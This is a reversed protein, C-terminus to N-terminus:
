HMQSLPRANDVVDLPADVMVGRTEKVFVALIAAIVFAVPIITLAHQFSEISFAMLNGRVHTGTSVDLIKGVLPQFLAGGSMVLLNTVAIATGALGPVNLERAIPFIVVQASSCLGFILLLLGL